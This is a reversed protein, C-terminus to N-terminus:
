AQIAQGNVVSYCKKPTPKKFKTCTSVLWYGCNKTTPQTTEFGLGKLYNVVQRAAKRTNLAYHKCTKM